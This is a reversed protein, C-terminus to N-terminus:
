QALLERVGMSFLKNFRKAEISLPANALHLAVVDFGLEPKLPIKRVGASGASRATIEDVITLGRGHVVMSKAIHWPDTWAVIRISADHARIYDSLARGLPGRSHLAVFPHMAIDAMTMERYDDFRGNDPALVVFQGRALRQAVINPNPPPNLAFGIDIRSQLLANALEDLNLTEIEFVTDPHSEQYNAAVKPLLEQGFAPTGAIRLRGRGTSRINTAVHRLTEVERYVVEVQQFLRHAEPTALLKGKVREFLMYGLQQETHALVQSISPQTVNLLAAANVMSGSLYVAHFVEIQRLRM